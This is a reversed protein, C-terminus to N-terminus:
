RIIKGKQLACQYRAIMALGLRRKRSELSWGWVFLLSLLLVDLEIGLGTRSGDLTDGGSEGTKGEIVSDISLKAPLVSPRSRILPSRPVSLPTVELVSIAAPLGLLTGREEIGTSTFALYTITFITHPRHANM